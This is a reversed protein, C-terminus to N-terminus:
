DKESKLRLPVEDGNYIYKATASHRSGLLRGKADQVSIRASVLAEVVELQQLRSAIQKYPLTFLGALLDRQSRSLGSLNKSNAIGGSGRSSSLSSTTTVKASTSNSTITANSNASRKSAGDTGRDGSQGLESGGSTNVSGAVGAVSALSKASGQTLASADISAVSRSVAFPNDLKAVVKEGKEPVFAIFQDKPGLRLRSRSVGTNSEAAVAAPVIASRIRDLGRTSAGVFDTARRYRSEAFSRSDATSEVRTVPVASGREVIRSPSSGVSATTRDATGNNQNVVTDGPVVIFSPKQTGMAADGTTNQHPSAGAESNDPIGTGAAVAPPQSPGTSPTTVGIADRCDEPDAQVIDGFLLKAFRRYMNMEVSSKPQVRGFLGRRQVAGGDPCAGPSSSGNAPLGGGTPPKPNQNTPTEASAYSQPNDILSKEIASAVSETLEKSFARCQKRSAGPAIKRCEGPFFSKTFEAIAKKWKEKCFDTGSEAKCAAFEDGSILGKEFKGDSRSGKKYNDLGFLFARYLNGGAEAGFDLELQSVFPIIQDSVRSMHTELEQYRLTKGVLDDLKTCASARTNTPDGCCAQAAHVLDEDVVGAVHMLEHFMVNAYNVTSGAVTTKGKAEEALCMHVTVQQLYPNAQAPISLGALGPKWDCRIYTDKLGSLFNKEMRAATVGLGSKELCRLYRGRTKETTMPEGKSSSIMVAAVGKSLAEFDKAREPTKCSGAFMSSQRITEALRDVRDNGDAKLIKWWDRQLAALRNNVSDPSECLLESGLVSTQHDIMKQDAPSTEDLEVRSSASTFRSAGPVKESPLNVPADTAEFDDATEINFSVSKGMFTRKLLNYSRSNLDLLYTSEHVGRRSRDTIALRLFRGRNPESAVVTKNGQSVEWFDVTGDGDQDLQIESFGSGVIIQKRVRGLSDKRQRVSMKGHKTQVSAGFLSELDKQFKEGPTENARALDGACIGGVSLVTLM